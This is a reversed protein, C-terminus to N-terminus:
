SLITSSVLLARDGMDSSDVGRSPDAACDPFDTCSSWLPPLKSARTMCGSDSGVGKFDEDRCHKLGRVGGPASVDGCETMGEPNGNSTACPVCCDGDM